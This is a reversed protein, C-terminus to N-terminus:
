RIHEIDYRTQFIKSFHNAITIKKKKGKMRQRVTQRGEWTPLERRWLTQKRKILWCVDFRRRLLFIFSFFTEERKEFILALYALQYFLHALFRNAKLAVACLGATTALAATPCNTVSLSICEIASVTRLLSPHSRQIYFEQLHLDLRWILFNQKRKGERSVIFFLKKKDQVVLRAAVTYTHV